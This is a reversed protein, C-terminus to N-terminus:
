AVTELQRAIRVLERTYNDNVARIISGLLEADANGCIAINREWDPSQEEHSFRIVDVSIRLCALIEDIAKLSEADWDRSERVARVLDAASVTLLVAQLAIGTLPPPDSEDQLISAMAARGNLPFAAAVVNTMDVGQLSATTRHGFDTAEHETLIDHPSLSRVRPDGKQIWRRLTRDTIAHEACFQRKREAAALYVARSSHQGARRTRQRERDRARKADRVRARRQERTEDCAQITRIRCEDREAATLQLKEGLAKAPILARGERENRREVATIITALEEDSFAGPSSLGSRCIAERLSPLDLGQWRGSRQRAPIPYTGREGCALTAAFAWLFTNPDVCLGQRRRFQALRYLEALRIAARQRLSSRKRSFPTVNEPVATPDGGDNSDATEAKTSNEPEAPKGALPGKRTPRAGKPPPRM